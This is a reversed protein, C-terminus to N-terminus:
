VSQFKLIDFKNNFELVYDLTMDLLSKEKLINLVYTLINKVEVEKLDIKINNAYKVNIDCDDMSINCVDSISDLINFNEIECFIYNNTKSNLYRNNFEKLIENETM